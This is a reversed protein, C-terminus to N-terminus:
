LPSANNPEASPDSVDLTVLTMPGDLSSDPCELWALHGPETDHWAASGVRLGVAERPPQARGDHPVPHVTLVGDGLIQAFWSGSANTASSFSAPM